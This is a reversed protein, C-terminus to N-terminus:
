SHRILSLEILALSVCKGWWDARSSRIQKSGSGYINREILHALTPFPGYNKIFIFGLQRFKILVLFNFFLVISKSKCQYPIFHEGNFFWAISLVM